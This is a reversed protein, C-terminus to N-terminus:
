LLAERLASIAKENETMLGVSMRLWTPLDYNKVPRLIIGKKLMQEFVELSDKKTDFLVFNGQSPLYQLNMKKLEEYFFDLGQWTLKKTKELFDIDKLAAMAAVQMLSNINFPKRVKNVLECLGENAFMIGLRLGALGYVKSMTRLSVVNSFKRVYVHSNPYDAARTYEFYAEDIVIIVDNNNGFDEFFADMESKTNYTGTPNNPNTLFILKHKPTWHKKFNKLDFKFDSTQPVFTTDCRAVQASLRYTDFARHSTLIKDGPECVLRVLFDCLEDSGNGFVINQPRFEYYKSIEEKLQFCSGDPYLNLLHLNKKIADIALPSPGLPNENSALKIVEKIGYQRKTEEIPKGPTYPVLKTIYESIKM